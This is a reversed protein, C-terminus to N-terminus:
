HQAIFLLTTYQVTLYRYDTTNRHTCQLAFINTSAMKLDNVARPSTAVVVVPAPPSQITVATANRPYAAITIRRHRSGQKRDRVACPTTVIAGPADLTQATIAAIANWKWSSVTENVIKQGTVRILRGGFM